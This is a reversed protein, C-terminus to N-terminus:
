MSSCVHTGVKGIPTIFNRKCTHSYHENYLVQELQQNVTLLVNLIYKNNKYIMVFATHPLPRFNRNESNEYM